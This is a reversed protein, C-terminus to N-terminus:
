SIWRHKFNVSPRGTKGTGGDYIQDNFPSFGCAPQRHADQKCLRITFFPRCDCSLSASRSKPVATIQLWKWCVWMSQIAFGTHSQKAPKHKREWNLIGVNALCHQICFLEVPEPYFTLFDHVRTAFKVWRTAFNWEFVHIEFEQCQTQTEVKSSLKLCLGLYDGFDTYNM